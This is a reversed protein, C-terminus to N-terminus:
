FSGGAELVGPVVENLGEMDFWCNFLRFPCPGYDVRHESSLIPFNDLIKKEIVMNTLHPFSGTLGKTVM